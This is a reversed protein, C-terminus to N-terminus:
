GGAVVTVVAEGTVNEGGGRRSHSVAYDGPPADRPIAIESVPPTGPSGSVKVPAATLRLGVAAGAAGTPGAMVATLEVNEAAPRGEKEEAVWHLTLTEGPRYTKQLDEQRCCTYVVSKGSSAEDGCAAAGLPGVLCM